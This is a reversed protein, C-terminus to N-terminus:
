PVALPDAGSTVAVTAVPQEIIVVPPATSPPAVNPDATLAPVVGVDPTVAASTAPAQTAGTRTSPKTPKPARSVPVIENGDKDIVDYRVDLSLKKGPYDSVVPFQESDPDDLTLPKMYRQWAGAPFTAGTVKVGRVNEMSRLGLAPTGDDNLVPEGDEDKMPQDAHIYGMWVATVDHRTYGVFWADRYDEATGTKGAVLRNGFDATTGTGRAAVQRLIENVTDAVNEDLVRKPPTIARPVEAGTSDVIREIVSPAQYVGRQSFTLYAAAMEIPRVEKTGLVLSNPADKRAGIGVKPDASIGLSTAVDWIEQSRGITALAYSTNSSRVTADILSLSSWSANNHNAVEWDPDKSDGAGFIRIRSPAPLNSVASYGDRVLATLLFPKFTSGPSHPRDALNIEQTAFNRGGVMARVKATRDLHVLAVEPDKDSDLEAFAAEYAKKQMDLDLTTYVQYGGTAVPRLGAAGLERELESKVYQAFYEAHAERAQPSFSDRIQDRPALNLPEKAAADASANSVFGARAMAALVQLQRNKAEPQRDVEGLDPSRIVGALYASKALDLDHADVGFYAKAAAQIGYANRGFYIENLYRRLIEPKTLQHEVKMALLAERAKRWLTKEAGVYSVKVLQQTITSGGQVAGRHRLDSVVARVLGLPDIGGHREFNRDEAALVAQRTIQPIESYEVVQRNEDGHIVMLPTGHVDYITTTQEPEARAPLDGEVYIFLGAVLVTFIGFAALFLPQRRQWLWGGRPNGPPRPPRPPRGGASGPSMPAPRRAVAPETARSSASRRRHAKAPPSSMNSQAAGNTAVGNPEVAGAEPSPRDANGPKATPNRPIENM